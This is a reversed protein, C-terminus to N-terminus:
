VESAVQKHGSGRVDLRVDGSEQRAGTVVEGLPSQAWGCGCFYVGFEDSVERVEGEEYRDRGDLFTELIEIKM